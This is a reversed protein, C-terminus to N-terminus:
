RRSLPRKRPKSGRLSAEFVQEAGGELYLGVEDLSAKVGRNGFGFVKHGTKANELGFRGWDQKGVIRGKGKVLRLGAKAALARVKEPDRM